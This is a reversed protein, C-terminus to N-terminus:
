ISIFSQPRECLPKGSHLRCSKRSNKLRKDIGDCALLERKIQADDKSITEGMRVTYDEPLAIGDEV